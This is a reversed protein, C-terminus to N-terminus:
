RMSIQVTQTSYDAAGAPFEVSLATVAGNEVWSAGQVSVPKRASQVAVAYNRGSRGQMVITHRGSAPDFGHSLIRVSSPTEGASPSDMPELIRLGPELEYRVEDVGSLVMTVPCHVDEGPVATCSGSRGNVLVRRIVAGPEFGPSFDLSFEGLAASEIRFTANGATRSMTLRITGSSVKLNRIEASAWRAPFHPELRVTKRSASPAFGLMGKVLPTVVGASSFLQHPVATDMAQYFDGSLLEPVFGLANVFTLRANQQWRRFGAFPRHTRYEAWGLVGTMFPWVSGNNYSVPDYVKSNNSLMRGGWDTACAADALTELMGAAAEPRFRGLAIPFAPWITVEDSRDGKDTVAFSILKRGSDWYKSNLAEFAKGATEAARSALETEGCTGALRSVADHAAASVGALYVDTSTRGLLLAGTEIAALGAKANEMLGDGDTDASLCFQYAKRISDLSERIFATDGSHDLYNALAVLYLPTTDGHYYGYPYQTFWPIMGGAQSLEHMMKGDARQNGRLFALEQRLTAFDGISAVAFSNIFTDGGFFWGFGPRASTGSLGLGAIQGCGLQPNCVYGTDLAVKAWQVAQDLEPDPSKLSFFDDRLRSFHAVNAEYLASARALLGIYSERVKTASDLGGAVAIPLFNRRAYAPDVDIHFQTPSDPLNHAPQASYRTAAPSGIFASHKGTSESLVFARADEDWYSYQGGLGAPWMPVLDILFSVTISVKRNSDVDLLLLSGPEDLPTLLHARVVFAPHAYTITSCEPRVTVLEALDRSDLPYSYGEVTFSLRLDRVIKMPYVWAEFLGEERGMLVARRGAAEVYKGRRVPQSLEIPNHRIVFKPIDPPPPASQSQVEAACASGLTLCVAATALMRALRLIM